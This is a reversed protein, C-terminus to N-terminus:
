IIKNLKAVLYPAATTFLLVVTWLNGTFINYAQLLRTISEGSMLGFFFEFSVTLIFWLIGIYIYTKQTGKGLRPIFIFSLCFIMLCLIIGSLPLSLKGLHPRLIYERLIGNCIALPIICAWILLSKRIITSKM